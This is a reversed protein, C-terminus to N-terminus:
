TSFASLRDVEHFQGLVAVRDAVQESMLKVLEAVPRDQAAPPQAAYAMHEMIDARPRSSHM